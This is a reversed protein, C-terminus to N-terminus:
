DTNTVWIIIAILLCLFSVWLAALLWGLYGPNQDIVVLAIIFCLIALALLVIIVIMYILSDIRVFTIIVLIAAIVLFITGIAMFALNVKQSSTTLGNYRLFPSIAIAIVACLVATIVAVLYIIRAASVM